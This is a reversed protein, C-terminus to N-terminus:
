KWWELNVTRSGKTFEEGDGTINKECPYSQIWQTASDQVVIRYRHVHRSERGESPVTHDATILDGFKEERPIDRTIKTRTCIECNQDKPVHTNTTERSTLEFVSSEWDWKKQRQQKQNKLLFQPYTVPRRFMRKVFHEPFNELWEPIDPMPNRWAGPTDEDKNENKTKRTTQSTSKVQVRVKHKEQVFQLNM